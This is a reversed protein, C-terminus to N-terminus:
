NMKELEDKSKVELSHIYKRLNMKEFHKENLKEEDHTQIREVLHTELIVLL